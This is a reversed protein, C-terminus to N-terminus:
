RQTQIPHGNVATLVGGGQTLIRPKTNQFTKFEQSNLFSIVYNFDEKKLYANTVFIEDRRDGSPLNPLTQLEFRNFSTYDIFKYVNVLIKAEDNTSVTALTVSLLVDKELRNFVMSWDDSLFETGYQNNFAEIVKLKLLERQEILSSM